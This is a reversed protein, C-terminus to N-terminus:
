TLKNMNNNLNNDDLEVSIENPQHPINSYQQNHYSNSNTKIINVNQNICNLLEDMFKINKEIDQTITTNQNIRRTTRYHEYYWRIIYLINIIIVGILMYSNQDM